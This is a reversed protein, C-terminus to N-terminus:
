PVRWNSVGAGAVSVYVCCLRFLSMPLSSVDQTNIKAGRGILEKVVDICDCAAAAHLATHGDRQWVFFVLLSLFLGFRVLITHCSVDVASLLEWSRDLEAAVAAKNGGAALVIFAEAAELARVANRFEVPIQPRSTVAAVSCFM